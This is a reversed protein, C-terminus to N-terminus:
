TYHEKFQKVNSILLEFGTLAEEET